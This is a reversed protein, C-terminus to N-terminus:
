QGETQTSIVDEMEDASMPRGFFYGQMTSCGSQVLFDAQGSTEVGEAIVNLNLSKALAIVARTISADDQNSVVEKIFSRDIKLKDVPLQKLYSLSSYGTGFDDIAISIGMQSLLDLQQISKDPDQMMERETVELELWEPRFGIVAIEERLLQIFESNM